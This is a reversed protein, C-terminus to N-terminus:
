WYLIVGKYAINVEKGTIDEVEKKFRQPDANKESLHLLTFDEVNSLDWEKLTEKINELSMHSRVIREIGEKGESNILIDEAYNCEVLIHKLEPFSYKLKRTDTAFLVKGIKEHYILYGVCPCYEGNSETHYNEFAMIKFHGVQNITKTELTNIRETDGGLSSKIHSPAYISIGSPLGKYYARSHDKHHHKILFYIRNYPKKLLEKKICKWAVGCELLLVENEVRLVYCNGKSNSGLVSLTAM